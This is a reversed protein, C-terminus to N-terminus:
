SPHIVTLRHALTSAPTELNGPQCATRPPWVKCMQLQRQQNKLSNAHRGAKHQSQQVAPGQNKRCFTYTCRQCCCSLPWIKCPHLYRLHLVMICWAVKTHLAKKYRRTPNHILWTMMLTDMADCIGKLIADLQCM